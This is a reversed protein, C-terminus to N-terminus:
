PPINEHCTFAFNATFAPKGAVLHAVSVVSALLDGLRIHLADLGYTGMSSANADMCARAADAGALDFFDASGDKGSQAYARRGTAFPMTKQSALEGYYCRDMTFRNAITIRKTIRGAGSLRGTFIGKLLLVDQVKGTNRAEDWVPQREPAHARSHPVDDVFFVAAMAQGGDQNADSVYFSSHPNSSKVQKTELSIIM